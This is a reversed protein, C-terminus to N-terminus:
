VERAKCSLIKNLFVEQEALYNRILSGKKSMEWWPVYNCIFSFLLQAYISEVNTLDISVYKLIMTMMALKNVRFGLDYCDWCWHQDYSLIM